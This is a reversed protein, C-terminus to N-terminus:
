INLAATDTVCPAVLTTAWTLFGLSAWADYTPEGNYVIGAFTDIKGRYYSSSRGDSDLCDVGKKTNYAAKWRIIDAKRANLDTSVDNLRQEDALIGTLIM